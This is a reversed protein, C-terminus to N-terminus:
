ASSHPMSTAEQMSFSSSTRLIICASGASHAVPVGIWTASMESSWCRRSCSSSCIALLSCASSCARASVPLLSLCRAMACISPAGLPRPPPAPAAWGPPVPCRSAMSPRSWCSCSSRPLTGTLGRFSWRGISNELVPASALCRSASSSAASCGSATPPLLSPPCAISVGCDRAARKAPIPCSSSPPSAPAALLVNGSRAWKSWCSDESCVPRSGPTTSCSVAVVVYLAVSFVLSPSPTKHLHM